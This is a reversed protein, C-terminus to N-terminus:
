PNPPSDSVGVYAGRTDRASHSRGADGLRIDEPQRQPTWAKVDCLHTLVVWTFSHIRLHRYMGGVMTPEREM